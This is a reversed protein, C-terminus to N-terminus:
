GEAPALELARNLNYEAVGQMFARDPFPGDLLRLPGAVLSLRQALLYLALRDGDLSDVALAPYKEHLRIRLFVHEWEVDFYLLEDIDIVVPDGAADIRVHDPGLEGHVVSYESRPRIRGCLTVLREALRDSAETIRPDRRPAEALDRLARDLVVGECSAGLSVEGADVLGVKGFGPARYFRMPELMEALRAMVPAAAPPDRELLQELNEGPLDEVIAVDAQHEAHDRDVGYVACVRVGLATLRRHAAEFQDLGTAGSFPGTPDDGGEAAPWYNEADEWVYAVASSADDMTLRFVGKMTGGSIREIGALRRGGGLTERAVRAL